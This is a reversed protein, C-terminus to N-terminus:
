KPISYVVVQDNNQSAVILTRDKQTILELRRADGDVIFGSKTSSVPKFNGKGDGKLYLGKFADYRGREVEAYYFNGVMLLDLNGDKDIDASLMDNVPAFQTEVPLLEITFANNENNQLYCSGNEYAVFRAATGLSETGFLDAVTARGYLATKYYKKSLGNIRPALTRLQKCPYLKGDEYFGSILDTSGNGDFDKAYLELPMTQSAKYRTNLGVNGLVYDQDGDKDFDGSTICNWFGNTKKNLTLQATTNVMKGKDNKFFTVPMYEGVVILDEQRDNDFDSWVADTVMGVKRLEKAETDTVDVFKGNNNKLLYSSPIAPYGQSQVRGGVFLDIDGDHDYDCAIACSSSSRIDPILTTNRTFNGKGDNVYLRHMLGESQSPYEYGGTAAYVDNDGDNDFDMIVFAGDEYQLDKTLGNSVSSFQGDKNQIFCARSRGVSGGILMDELGDGNLDGKALVPGGKSYMQPLLPDVSFDVFDDETHKFDIGTKVALSFVPSTEAVATPSHLTANKHFVQLTQNSKLNKFREMKGDPWMVQLSDVSTSAGLGFHLVNESTSLFGKIPQMTVLQQVGGAYAIAKTGQTPYHLEDMLQLRLYRNEPNTNASNEYIFSLSGNNNVVIDIDGDNDLDAYAAGNSNFATGMGWEKQKNEFTLNGNNKYIYNVFWTNKPDVKLFDLYEDVPLKPNARYLSDREWALDISFAHDITNGNTIFLDKWGDNDFDAILPAWSWETADVGALESIQSYTGNGMNLQLSNKVQQKALQKNKENLMRYWDYPTEWWSTKQRYNKESRMDLCFMDELGDNNIDAVDIGMAYFSTQPMVKDSALTFKGKYNYYLQDPIDFDNGLYLDTWGDNNFDSAYPTFGYRFKSNFSIGSTKIVNKFQQGEENLFLYDPYFDVPKWDNLGQLATSNLKSNYNSNIYIDLFHDNNIDLFVAHRLPGQASVGVQKAKETFTLDGNNFYLLVNLTDKFSGALSSFPDDMERTVLIDLLGDNNLDAMSAGNSWQTGALGASKTIDEFVLNGKNLYLANYADGAFFIDQLGDNNIDGIAVGSGSIPARAIHGNFHINSHAAPVISFLPPVTEVKESCGGMCCVCGLAWFVKRMM